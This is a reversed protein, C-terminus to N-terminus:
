PSDSIFGLIVFPPSIFSQSKTIYLPSGLPSGLNGESGEKESLNMLTAEDGEKESLNMLTAEHGERM